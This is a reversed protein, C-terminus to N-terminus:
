ASPTQRCGREHSSVSTGKACFNDSVADCNRMSAVKLVASNYDINRDSISKRVATVTFVTQFHSAMYDPLYYDGGDGGDDDDYSRCYIRVLGLFVFCTRLHQM